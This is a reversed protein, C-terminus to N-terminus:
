YDGSNTEYLNLRNQLNRSIAEAGKLKSILHGIAEIGELNIDLDYHLRMMKEVDPLQSEKLYTTNEITIVELLGYQQLSEIFSLEIEHIVCFHYVPIFENNEM